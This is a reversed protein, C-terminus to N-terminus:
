RSARLGEERGWKSRDGWIRRSTMGVGNMHMVWATLRVCEGGAGVTTVHGIGQQLTEVGGPLSGLCRRLQWEM